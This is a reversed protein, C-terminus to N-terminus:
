SVAMSKVYGLAKRVAPILLIVITLLAELGIYAGNYALSYIVGSKFGYDGAYIGFFIWGSLFAFFYRGIVGALYAWILSFKSKSNTFIGSLGLAGFAFIYDVFLQPVSLIYPDIILQLLGYAIGVTIGAGLGYWYGILSVFFMSLLTVSGGMPMHVLKLFSCITGLAIAMASFALMKPNFSKSSNRSALATAALLIAILIVILVAFGAATPQYTTGGWEDTVKSIFISMFFGGKVYLLPSASRGTGECTVNRQKREGTNDPDLSSPNCSSTYRLM